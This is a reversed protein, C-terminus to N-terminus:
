DKPERTLIAPTNPRRVWGTREERPAQVALLHDLYDALTQDSFPRLFETTATANLAVIRDVLQARTLLPSVPPTADLLGVRDPILSPEAVTAPSAGGSSAHAESSGGRGGVVLEGFMTAPM